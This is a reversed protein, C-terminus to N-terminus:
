CHSKKAGPEDTESYQETKIRSLPHSSHLQPNVFIITSSRVSGSLGQYNSVGLRAMALVDGRHLVPKYKEAVNEWFTVDLFANQKDETTGVLCTVTCKKKDINDANDLDGVKDVIGVLNCDCGPQIDIDQQTDLWAVDHFNTYEGLM